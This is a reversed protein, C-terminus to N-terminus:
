CTLYQTVRFVNNLNLVVRLMYVLAGLFINEEYALFVPNVYESESQVNNSFPTM